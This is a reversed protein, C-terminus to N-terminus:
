FNSDQVYVSRLFNKFVGHCEAYHCEANCEANRSEAYGWYFGNFSTVLSREGNIRWIKALPIKGLFLGSIASKCDREYYPANIDLFMQFYKLMNQSNKGWLSTAKTAQLKEM